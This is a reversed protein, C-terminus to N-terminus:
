RRFFLVVDRCLALGYYFFAGCFEVHEAFVLVGRFGECAVVLRFLVEGGFHVFHRVPLLEWDRERSKCPNAQRKNESKNEQISALSINPTARKQHPKSFAQFVFFLFLCLTKKSGFSFCLKFLVFCVCVCVAIM